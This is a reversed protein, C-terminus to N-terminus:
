GGAPTAEVAQLLRLRLARGPVHRRILMLSGLSLLMTVGGFGLFFGHPGVAHLLFVGLIPSIM